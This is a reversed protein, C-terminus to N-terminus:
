LEVEDALDEIQQWQMGLRFVISVISIPEHAITHALKRMSWPLGALVFREIESVQEPPGEEEEDALLRLMDRKVGIACPHAWGSPAKKCPEGAAVGCWGCESITNSM